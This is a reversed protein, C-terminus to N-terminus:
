PKPNEKEAGSKRRQQADRILDAVEPFHQASAIQAANYKEHSYANFIGVVTPAPDSGAELLLKVNEGRGNYAAFILPTFGEENLANVDAGKQILIKLISTYPTKAAEMIACDGGNNRKGIAAGKALLLEIMGPSDSGAAAMLPTFGGGERETMCFENVNAGRSILIGAAATKGSTAAYYLATVGGFKGSFENVGAGHDLIARVIEPNNGSVAFCLATSGFPQASHANVDAGKEILFRTIDAKGAKAAIM